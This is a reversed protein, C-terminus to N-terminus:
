YSLLKLKFKQKMTRKMTSYTLCPRTYRLCDWLELFHQSKKPVCTEPHKQDFKSKQQLSSRGKQRPLGSWLKKRKALAQSVVDRFIDSCLISWLKGTGWMQNKQLFINWSLFGSTSMIVQLHVSTINNISSIRYWSTCSKRWWNYPWKSEQVSNHYMAQFEVEGMRLALEEYSVWNGQFIHVGPGGTTSFRM